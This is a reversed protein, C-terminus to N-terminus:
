SGASIIDRVDIWDASIEEGNEDTLIVILRYGDLRLRISM